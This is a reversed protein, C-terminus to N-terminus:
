RTGCRDAGRFVSIGGIGGSWVDCGPGVTTAAFFSNESPLPTTPVFLRPRGSGFDLGELGWFGDRVGVGYVMESHASMTPVGNPFSADPNAWVTRCRRSDPDWDIREVGRPANGPVNGTLQALTNLPSPLFSFARDVTLVNNVVVSSHGRVLVSQESKAQEDEERGFTVPLECAVRRDTDPGLPEWDEPIRDRWLLTLHMPERGDTIVVFRDDGPRTGMLSPTSGSGASLTSGSSGSGTAYEARWVKRIGEAGARFKYQAETSVPYLGGREDVALSNAVQELAEDPVSSDQCRSGNISAVRLNPGTMRGPQRPVVGVMGQVTAFAIEGDYTLSLGILRDDDRCWARDPLEFLRLLQIPSTRVGPRVDGYVGLARSRVTVLHNERTLLNYVGSTSPGQPVGEGQPETTSDIVAGTRYDLKYVAGAGAPSVTSFWTTRRGDPYPESFQLIIPSDQGLAIDQWTVQAARQPAALPSSGQAYANRHPVSWASSGAFPNCPPEQGDVSAITRCPPVREPSAESRTVAAGSMSTAPWAMVAGGTVVAAIAVVCRRRGPRM